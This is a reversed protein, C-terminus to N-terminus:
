DGDGFSFGASLGAAPALEGNLRNLLFGLSLNLYVLKERREADALLEPLAADMERATKIGQQFEFRIADGLYDFEEPLVTEIRSRTFLAELGELNAAISSMTSGSRRLPASKPRDRDPTERLFVGIRTDRVAELGHVLTGIVTNMAEKDTRFLRNTEDPTNWITRLQQDHQWAASLDEAISHLNASAANAFQCRFADGAELGDAGTGFLLFDLAGLGQLAISTKALSAVELVAGDQKALASQVQRLGRSKRDPFYFFREVRNDRLVPGVRFWEIFSWAEVAAHFAKRTAALRAADPRACLADAHGSLTRTAQALQAYSPVIYESLTSRLVDKERTQALANSGCSVLLLCAALFLRM